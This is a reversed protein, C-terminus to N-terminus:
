VLATSNNMPCKPVFKLSIKMAIWANENLFICKFIDDALHRGNERLRLTNLFSTHTHPPINSTMGLLEDDAKTIPPFERIYLHAPRSYEPTVILEFYVSCCCRLWGTSSMAEVCTSRDGSNYVITDFPWNCGIVRTMSTVTHIICWYNTVNLFSLTTINNWVSLRSYGCAAGCFGLNRNVIMPKILYYHQM